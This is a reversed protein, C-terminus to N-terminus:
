LRTYPWVWPSAESYLLLVRNIVNVRKAHKYTHNKPPGRLQPVTITCNQWKGKKFMICCGVWRYVWQMMQLHKAIIRACYGIMYKVVTYTRITCATM